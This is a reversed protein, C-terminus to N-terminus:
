GDSDDEPYELYDAGPPQALETIWYRIAQIIPFLEIIGCIAPLWANILNNGDGEFFRPPFRNWNDMSVKILLFALFGFTAAAVTYAHARKKFPKTTAQLVRLREPDRRRRIIEVVSDFALAVLALAFPPGMLMPIQNSSVKGLYGGLVFLLGVAVLISIMDLEGFRSM